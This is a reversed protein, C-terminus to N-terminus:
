NEWKYGRVLSFGPVVSKSVYHSGEPDHGKGNAIRSKLKGQKYERTMRLGKVENLTVTL